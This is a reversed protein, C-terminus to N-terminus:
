VPVEEITLLEALYDHDVAITSTPNIILNFPAYDVEFLALDSQQQIM